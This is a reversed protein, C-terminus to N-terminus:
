KMEALCLREAISSTAESSMKLGYLLSSRPQGDEGNGDGEDRPHEACSDVLAVGAGDM